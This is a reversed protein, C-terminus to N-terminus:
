SSPFNIPTGQFGPGGILVQTLNQETNVAINTQVANVTPNIGTDASLIFNVARISANLRETSANVSVAPINPNIIDNVTGVVQTSIITPNFSPPLKTQFMSGDDIGPPYVFTQRCFITNRYKTGQCDFITTAPLLQPIYHAFGRELLDVFPQLKRYTLMNSEENNNWLMYTMYIKKLNMYIFMHGVDPYGATKRTRPDVNATYIFDIWEAITMASISAPAVTNIDEVQWEFPVTLASFVIFTSGWLWFGIGLEYWAKVDCEIASAPDIDVCVEKTNVINETGSFTSSGTM